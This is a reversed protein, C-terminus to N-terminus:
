EEILLKRNGSGRGKKAIGLKTVKNCILTKSVGFHRALEKITMSNYMEEFKKRSVTIVKEM